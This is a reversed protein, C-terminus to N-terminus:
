SDLPDAQNSRKPNRGGKPATTEVKEQCFTAEEAGGRGKQRWDGEKVDEVQAKETV